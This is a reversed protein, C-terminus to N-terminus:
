TAADGPAVLGGGGDAGADTRDSSRSVRREVTVALRSLAYNITIFMIAIMFLSQIPNDLL